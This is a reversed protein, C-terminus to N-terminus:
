TLLLLNMQLVTHAQLPGHTLLERNAQPLFDSQPLKYRISLSPPQGPASCSHFNTSSYNFIRSYSVTGWYCFSGSYRLDRIDGSLRITFRSECALRPRFRKMAQGIAQCRSLIRGVAEHELFPLRIWITVPDVAASVRIQAAQGTQALSANLVDYGFELLFVDDPNM